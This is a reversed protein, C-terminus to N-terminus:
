NCTYTFSIQSLCFQLQQNPSILDFEWDYLTLQFAVVNASTNTSCEVSGSGGEVTYTPTSYNSVFYFSGPKSADKINKGYDGNEGTANEFLADYFNGELNGIKVISKILGSYGQSSSTYSFSASQVNEFSFLVHFDYANDVKCGATNIGMPAALNDGCSQYSCDNFILAGDIYKENALNIRFRKDKGKASGLDFDELVTNSLMANTINVSHPTVDAGANRPHIAFHNSSVAIGVCLAISMSLTIAYFKKSNKNLM